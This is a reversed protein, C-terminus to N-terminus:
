LRDRVAAALAPVAEEYAPHQELIYRAFALCSVNLASACQNAVAESEGRKKAHHATDSMQRLRQNIYGNEDLRRGDVGVAQFLKKMRRDTVSVCGFYTNKLYRRSNLRAIDIDTDKLPVMCAVLDGFLPQELLQPDLGEAGKLKALKRDSVLPQPKKLIDLLGM